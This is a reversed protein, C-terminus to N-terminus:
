LANSFVSRVDTYFDRAAMGQEAPGPMSSSKMGGFPMHLETGTTPRNINLLGVPLERVARRAIRESRTFLAASLGFRTDRALRFADEVDTAPIIVSVPGFVEERCITPKQDASALLTPALFAGHAPLEANQSTLLQCGQEVAESISAAVNARATENVLPGLDVGAAQGDGVRLRGFRALLRDVLEDRVSVEAIVRRAATCKQGTQNAISRVLAEVTLDLDADALVIAPNHGGLEVQCKAGRRAAQAAVVRGVRESGTFSIAAVRTDDVLQAGIAGDGLVVSIAAPDVGAEVLLEAFAVSLLPVDESPKWVVVNGHVLAPAIKWIPISIPFNWPTVIVVVGVPIRATYALDGAASSHFTEGTPWWASSAHYELTEVGRTIEGRADALTKGEERTMLLAFEDVRESLLRAARTLARARDLASRGAWSDAAAVAVAVAETATASDAAVYSGVPEKPRAPNVSPVAAAGEIRGVGNIFSGVPATAADTATGTM